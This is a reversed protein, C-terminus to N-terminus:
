SQLAANDTIQVAVLGVFQKDIYRVSVLDGQNINNLSIAKGFQEVVTDSTVVFAIQDGGTSVVLKDGVWDVDVVWGQVEPMQPAAAPDVDEASVNGCCLLAASLVMLTIKKM